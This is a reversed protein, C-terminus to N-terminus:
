GLPMAELDYAGQPSQGNGIWKGRLMILPELKNMNFRWSFLLRQNRADM